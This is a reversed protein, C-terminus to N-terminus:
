HYCLASSQPEASESEFVFICGSEVATGDIPSGAIRRGETEEAADGSGDGSELATTLSSSPRPRDSRFSELGRNPLRFLLPVM